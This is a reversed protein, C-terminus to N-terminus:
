WKASIGYPLISPEKYLVHRAQFAKKMVPINIYACDLFQNSSPIRGERSILFSFCVKGKAVNLFGYILQPIIPLFDKNASYRQFASFFNLALGWVSCGQAPHKGPKSTRGM